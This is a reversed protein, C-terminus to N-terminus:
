RKKRPRAKKVRHPSDIKGWGPFAAGDDEEAPRARPRRGRLRVKGAVELQTMRIVALLALWREDVTMGCLADHFAKSQLYSPAM